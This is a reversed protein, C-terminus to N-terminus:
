PTQVERDFCSLSNTGLSELAVVAVIDTEGPLSLDLLPADVLPQGRRDRVIRVLPRLAQGAASQEVVVAVEGSQLRVASGAPFLGLAAVLDAGQPGIPAGQQRSLAALAHHHPPPTRGLRRAALTDLRDALRIIRGYLSLPRQGDRGYLRDASFDLQAEYLVVARMLLDESLPASALFHQLRTAWHLEIRVRDKTSLANPREMADVTADALGAKPLDHTLAALALGVLQTRELGLAHGLVLSFIATSVLHGALDGTLEPKQALALQLGRYGEIHDVLVQVLRKVRVSPGAGGQGAAAVWSRMLAALACYTRVLYEEAELEGGLAQGQRGTFVRIASHDRNFLSAAHAPEGLVRLWEQVFASVEDLTTGQPIILRAIGARNWSDRLLSAKGYTGYDMRLLQRNAFFTYGFLSLELAEATALAFSQAASLIGALAAQVVANNVDYIRAAQEVATLKVIVQTAARQASSLARDDSTARPQRTSM